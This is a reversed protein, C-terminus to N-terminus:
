RGSRGSTPSARRGPARGAAGGDARGAIRPNAAPDVGHEHAVVVVVVHVQRRQPAEVGRKMRGDEGAEAVRRVEGPVADRAAPVEVPPLGRLDRGADADRGNRRAMRRPAPEEVPIPRQPAPEDDLAGRAGGVERAVRPVARVERLDGRCKGARRRASSGIPAKTGAQYMAGTCMPGSSATRAQRSRPAPTQTGICKPM